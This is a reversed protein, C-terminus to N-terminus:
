GLEHYLFNKTLPTGIKQNIEAKILKKLTDKKSLNLQLFTQKKHSIKEKIALKMLYRVLPIFDMDQLFSQKYTTYEKLFESNQGEFLLSIKKFLSSLDEDTDNIIKIIEHCMSSSISPLMLRCLSAMTIDNRFSAVAYVDASKTFHETAKKSKGYDGSELIFINNKSHFLPTLKDMHNDEINRICFFSIKNGFLDCQSNITKICEAVSVHFVEINEFSFAFKNRFKERLFDCFVGFTKKYNGYLYFIKGSNIHNDNINGFEIKM